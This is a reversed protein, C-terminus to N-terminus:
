GERGGERVTEGGGDSVLEPEGMSFNLGEGLGDGLLKFSERRGVGLLQFEVIGVL